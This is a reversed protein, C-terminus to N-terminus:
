KDKKDETSTQPLDLRRAARFPLNDGKGDWDAGDLKSVHVWPANEKVTSHIFEGNGIYMGVHRIKEPDKGWFILDGPELQEMSIDKFLRCAFQDKSDRPLNIGVERYLMQVLGSCDFGKITTRGGWAYPLDLFRKSFPVIQQFPLPALDQTIDGKQVFAEAGNVMQIRVWRSHSADLVKFRSGFGMTIGPGRETDPESFIHVQMRNAKGTTKSAGAFFDSDHKAIMTHRVWGTYGDATTRIQTWKGQRQLIEIEESHNADSVVKATAEPTERM